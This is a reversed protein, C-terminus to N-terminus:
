VPSTCSVVEKAYQQLRFVRHGEIFKTWKTGYLTLFLCILLTIPCQAAIPFSPQTEPLWTPSDIPPGWDFSRKLQAHYFEHRGETGDRSDDRLHPSELRFGVGVFRRDETYSILMVQIRISSSKQGLHCQMSLVPVFEANQELPPLYLFVRSEPESLNIEIEDTNVERLLTSLDQERLPQLAGVIREWTATARQSIKWRPQDGFWSTQQLDFLVTVLDRFTKARHDM